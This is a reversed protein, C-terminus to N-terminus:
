GHNISCNSCGFAHLGGFLIELLSLVPKCRLLFGILLSSSNLVTVLIHHSANNMFVELLAEAKFLIFHVLNMLSSKCCLFALFYDIVDLDSSSM